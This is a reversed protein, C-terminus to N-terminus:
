RRSIFGFDLGLVFLMLTMLLAFGILSLLEFVRANPPKGTIGEYALFVLHGGDLVPIPLINVVALNASLMTLFLLLQALGKNAADGAANAITVPGGTLKLSLEGSSLKRIFNVVMMLNDGTVALGKPIAETIDLQKLPTDLPRFRLRRNVVYENPVVATHLKVKRKNGEKDRILLVVPRDPNVIQVDLMFISWGAINDPKDENVLDVIDTDRAFLQGKEPTPGAAFYYGEVTEGPLLKAPAGEDLLVAKEAPGGSRLAHIIPDIRCVIGLSPLSLALASEPTPDFWTVERPNVTLDITKGEKESGRRVQVTVPQSAKGRLLTDLRFPDAVPEGNVSVIQDGLQFGASAAPTKPQIAGVPGLTPIIGLDRRPVPPIKFALKPADPEFPQQPESKKDHRTVTLSLEKDPNAAMIAELEAHTAIPTGNVAYVIDGPLLRESAPLEIDALRGLPGHPIIPPDAFKLTAASAIMIRPLPFGEKRPKIQYELQAEDRKIVVKSGLEPDHDGLAVLRRIDDHSEVDHGNISTIKDGPQLGVNWGAGGPIVSGIDSSVSTVGLMYAVTAMIFAFIVNMIVGASIIAMRQPVSKSLYSRPDKLAALRAEAEKAASAAAAKDADQGAATITTAAARQEELYKLEEAATSPNDDQGLMKVYGGLPIIGIGYETEGRRFKGLTSPIFKSFFVVPAPRRLIYKTFLTVLKDLGRGLPVDFGVYFKDCRVGCWKAVLFHGLEHVFIVFGLGGAVALITLWNQPQVFWYLTEILNYIIHM